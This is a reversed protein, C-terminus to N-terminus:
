LIQCDASLTKKVLLLLDRENLLKTTVWLGPLMVRIQFLHKPVTSLQKHYNGQRSFLTLCSTKYTDPFIKKQAKM